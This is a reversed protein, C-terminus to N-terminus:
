TLPDPKLCSKWQGCPLQSSTTKPIATSKHNPVGKIIQGAGSLIPLRKQVRIGTRNLLGELDSEIFTRYYEGEYLSVFRFVLARGIRNRPLAYDVILIVGEPKTVRVMEELVRERIFVPMDHLAFSITCIDFAADEFRLRTADAPEFRANAYRNKRRAIRLMDESMDVGTTDYGRRAFALAQGGTGTAVDLVKSGKMASAADVVRERARVLPSAIVDYFPALAKFASESLSYYKEEDSLTHNMNM